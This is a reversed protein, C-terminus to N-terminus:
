SRFIVLPIFGYWGFEFYPQHDQIDEMVVWQYLLKARGSSFGFDGVGAGDLDLVKSQSKESLQEPMLKLEDTSHKM